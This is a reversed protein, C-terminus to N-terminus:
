ARFVDMKIDDDRVDINIENDGEKVEHEEPTTTPNQYKDPILSDTKPTEDPNRSMQEMEQEPTPPAGSGGGPMLVVKYKDAAITQGGTPGVMRYAGDAGTTASGGSGTQGIFSVVTGAPVPSGKVTVKGHVTGQPGKPAPKGCGPLMSATLLLAAM